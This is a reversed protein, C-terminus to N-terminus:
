KLMLPILIFKEEYIEAYLILAMVQPLVFDDGITINGVGRVYIKNKVYMRKGFRIGLLWFYVRNWYIYFHSRLVPLIRFFRYTLVNMKRCAKSCNGVHM